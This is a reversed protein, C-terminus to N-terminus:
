RIAEKRSLRVWPPSWRPESRHWESALLSQAAFHESIDGAGFSGRWPRFPMPRSLATWFDFESIVEKELKKFEAKSEGPLTTMASFAGHKLAPPRKKSRRTM